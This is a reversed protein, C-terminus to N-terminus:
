RLKFSSGAVRLRVQLAATVRKHTLGFMEAGSTGGGRRQAGAGAAAGAPPTVEAAKRRPNANVAATISAGSAEMAAAWAVTPHAEQVVRAGHPASGDANLPGTVKFLPADGGDVVECRWSAGLPGTETRISCFGIPYMFKPNHYSPRIYEIRGLREVTLQASLTWPLSPDERPLHQAADAWFAAASGLPPEADEDDSEFDPADPWARGGMKDSLTGSSLYDELQALALQFAAVAGGKRVCDAALGDEFSLCVDPTTGLRGHEASGFYQVALPAAESKRLRCAKLADADGVVLCPWYPYGKVRGWLVTGQPTSGLAAGRRGGPGLCRVCESALTLWEPSGGADYSIRHMGQEGDFADM